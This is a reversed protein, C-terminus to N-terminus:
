RGAISRSTSQGACGLRPSRRVARTSSWTISRFPGTSSTASNTAAPRRAALGTVAPWAASPQRRASMSRTTSTAGSSGQSRARRERAWRLASRTWGGPARARTTRTRGCCSKRAPVYSAVFYPGAAPVRQVGEPDIPTGIPVACFFPTTIRALFTPSPRALRVTLTDGAAHVAKVDSLIGAGPSGIRPTLSREISYEMTAATVPEGSPPSFRYGPRIRFSYTRGGGSVTPLAAALEPELRSGGRGPEDPYNLLKACTAYAIPVEVTGGLIAPDLSDVIRSTEVRLIGGQPAEDDIGRPRVSVWVRGGGTAVDEPSGGVPITATVKGSRPDIRSITGDGSNAVWVAGAGVAIGAPRRGVQITDRVSGLDSDIRAVADDLGLTVWAANQTLAIDAPRNGVPIQTPAGTRADIRTVVNGFDDALWAAGAGAAIAAPSQSPEIGTGMAAGSRARLHELLGLASALWLDGGHVAVSADGDPLSEFKIPRGLADFRTDIRRLTVFPDTRTASAVWVGGAGAALGDPSEGVAITRGVRVPRTAIRTVSEDEVNGVWLSRSRPEFALPGPSAGVSTVSTVRNTAPNIVAVANRDDSIAGPEREDDGTALVIALTLATALLVSGGLAILLGGRRRDVSAPRPRRRPPPAIAPDQALIARELERLEPGPELALEEQLARQAQRYSELADAQRGSWYLALMLQGRLRERGPHQGVLGELEAVLESHCGLALDAEIREEVAVLRLEDLRAIEERAFEEYAFDTLPAGRWLALAQRLLEAAAAADGRSMADRGQGILREFLDADLQDSRIELVYGGGRTLVLGEGLEKRLRSVYVQVTKRATEPPREGWLEDLIHDLSVVERRHLLLIALVGRQRGGGLPVERGDDLVSLPGLIRFEVMGRGVTGGRFM